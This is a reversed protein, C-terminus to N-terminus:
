EPVLRVMRGDVLRRKHWRKMDAEDARFVPMRIDDVMQKFEAMTVSHPRDPTDLDPFATVHKEIIRCERVARAALVAAGIGVSHDSFGDYYKLWALDVKAPYEAVCYLYSVDPIPTFMRTRARMRSRLQTEETDTLGGCSIILPKGTTAAAVLLDDWLNESSAIKHRKVYPDVEALLRPSFATCMFEIGHVDACSKLPGLWEARLVGKLPVDPRGYLADSDYLQFKVADAGAKAALAISAFCRNIDPQESGIEYAHWNSGVEAIIFPTM